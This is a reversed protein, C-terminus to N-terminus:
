DIYFSVHLLMLLNQLSSIHLVIERGTVIVEQKGLRFSSGCVLGM